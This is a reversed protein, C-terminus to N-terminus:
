QNSFVKDLVKGGLGAIGNIIAGKIMASSIMETGELGKDATYKKMENNANTAWMEIANKDRANAAQQQQIDLSKWAQIIGISAAQAQAENLKVKSEAESAQAAALVLKAGAEIVQARLLEVQGKKVGTDEKINDITEAQVDLQKHIYEISWEKTDEKIEADIRNARNLYNQGINKLYESQENQILVSLEQKKKNTDAIVNETDVGAKKKAETENVEAQSNKLRIDAKLSQNQLGMAQRQINVAMMSAADSANGSANGQVGHSGGGATTGGAGGGAGYMLAPNLGAEKLREVQNKPSTLEYNYAALQKDLSLGYEAARKNQELAQEGLLRQQERQRRNVDANYGTLQGIGYGLQDFIGGIANGIGSGASNSLNSIFSM